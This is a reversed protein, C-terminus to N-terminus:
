HSSNLRTSKRDEHGKRLLPLLHATLAFHGLYNTGFQLEFGDRTDRREPTRMVEANNIILDLSDQQQSLQRAFAAVSGLDALEMRGFRVQSDPVARKIAAVAAAGKEPNRGAIVVDAGARALAMSDEFGLGGTGTVVVTRGQQPPIDDGTWNTMSPGRWLDSSCVDSSWDSIRM